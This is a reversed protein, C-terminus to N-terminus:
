AHPSLIKFILYFLVEHPMQVVRWIMLLGVTQPTAREKSFRCIEAHAYFIMNFYKILVNPFNKISIISHDLGIKESFIYLKFMYM